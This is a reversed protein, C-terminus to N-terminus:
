DRKKFQGNLHPLYGSASHATNRRRNYSYAPVVDRHAKSTTVACSKEPKEKHTFSFKHLKKLNKGSPLIQRATHTNATAIITMLHLSKQQRTKYRSSRTTRPYHSTERHQETPPTGTGSLYKETQHFKGVGLIAVSITDDSRPVARQNKGNLHLANCNM